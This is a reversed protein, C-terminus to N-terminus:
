FSGAILEKFTLDCATFIRYTNKFLTILIAHTNLLAYM